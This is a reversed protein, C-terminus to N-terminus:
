LSSVASDYSSLRAGRVQTLLETKGSGSVGSIEILQNPRVPVLDELFKVGLVLPESHCRALLDGFTEDPNLFKALDGLM